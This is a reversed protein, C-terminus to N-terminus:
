HGTPTSLMQISSNTREFQGAGSSSISISATGTPQQGAVIANLKLTM